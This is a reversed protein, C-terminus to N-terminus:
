AFMQARSGCSDGSSGGEGSTLSGFVFPLLIFVPQELIRMKMSVFVFSSQINLKGTKFPFSCVPIM